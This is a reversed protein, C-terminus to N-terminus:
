RWLYLSWDLRVKYAFIMPQYISSEKLDWSFNCFYVFWLKVFILSFWRSDIPFLHKESKKERHQDIGLFRNKEFKIIKQFNEVLNSTCFKLVKRDSKSFCTTVRSTLVTVNQAETIFTIKRVFRQKVMALPNWPSFGPPKLPNKSSTAKESGTITSRSCSSICGSFPIMEYSLRFKKFFLFM